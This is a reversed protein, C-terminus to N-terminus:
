SSRRGNKLFRQNNTAVVQRVKREVVELSLGGGPQEVLQVDAGQHKNNVHLNLMPAKGAGLAHNPVVYSPRQSVILEPGNEGVVAQEGTGLPGGKARFKVMRGNIRGATWPDTKWRDFSSSRNRHMQAATYKPSKFQQDFITDSTAIQMPINYAPFPGASLLKEAYAESYIGQNTYNSGGTIGSPTNGSGYIIDRGGPNKGQKVYDKGSTASKFDKSSIGMSEAAKQWAKYASDIDSNSAQQSPTSWGKQPKGSGKAARLDNKFRTPDAVYYEFDTIGPGQANQWNKYLSNRSKTNNKILGKLRDKDATYYEFDEMQFGKGRADTWSKYAKDIDKNSTSLKPISWGKQAKGNGRSLWDSMRKRMGAVTGNEPEYDGYGYKGGTQDKYLGGGPADEWEGTIPNRRVTNGLDEPIWDGPNQPYPNSTSGSGSGGGGTYTSNAGPGYYNKPFKNWSLINNRYTDSAGKYSGLPNSNLVSKWYDNRVKQAYAEQGAAKQLEDFNGWGGDWASAGWAATSTNGTYQGGAMQMSKQALYGVGKTSYKDGDINWVADQGIAESWVNEPIRVGMQELKQLEAVSQNGSAWGYAGGGWMGFNEKSRISQAWMAGKSNQDKTGMTRRTMDDAALMQSQEWIDRMQLQYGQSSQYGRWADFAQSARANNVQWAGTNDGFNANGTSYNYFDQAYQSMQRAQNNTAVYANRNAFVMEPGSEGVQYFGGGAMDGGFARGPLFGKLFDWAKTGFSSVLGPGTAIGGASALLGNSGTSALQGNSGPLSPQPTYKGTGFMKAALGDIGKALPEFILKQAALAALAKGMNKFVDTLKQGNLIAQTFNNGIQKVGDGITNNTKLQAKWLGDATQQWQKQTIQGTKYADDLAKLKDKYSGTSNKINELLRDQDDLAQNLKKNEAADSRTQALKKDAVDYLSQYGDQVKKIQDAKDQGSLDQSNNIAAIAEAEEKKLDTLEKQIQRETELSKWTDEQGSLKLRLQANQDRLSKGIEDLKKREAEIDKNFQEASLQRALELIKKQQEVNNEMGSSIARRIKEEAELIPLLFKANDNKAKTASLQEKLSDEIEKLKVADQLVATEKAAELIAKQEAATEKKGVKIADQIKNEAELLANNQKQGDLINRLEDRKAKYSSLIENLKEREKEVDERKKLEAHEAALKNIEKSYKAREAATLNAQKSLQLIAKEKTLAEDDHNLKAKLQENQSRMNALISEADKQDQAHKKPDLGTGTGKSKIIPPAVPKEEPANNFGQLNEQVGNKLRLSRNAIRAKLEQETIEGRNRAARDNMEAGADQLSQLIGGGISGLMGPITNAGKGVKVKTSGIGEIINALGDAEKGIGSIGKAIAPTLKLLSDMKSLLNGMSNTLSVMSREMSQPIKSFEKEVQPAQKLLVAVVDKSLVKGDLMLKRLEGDTVGMGIAIRHALEPMNEVISNFEEARVVGGAMSQSFQRLAMSMEDASSGGIVGLQQITNTLQLIDKNTRGLETASRAVNQFLGVTERLSAGNKNSITLLERSVKAYDGTAATATKIRTQLVNFSDALKLAQTVSTVGVAVTLATGLRKFSDSLSETVKGIQSTKASVQEISRGYGKVTNTLKETTQGVEHTKKNVQDLTGSIQKVEAKTTETATKMQQQYKAIDAELSLVLKALRNGAM